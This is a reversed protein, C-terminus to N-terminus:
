TISFGGDVAITQGTLYSNRESALFAAVEAIEEVRGLRGLVTRKALEAIQAPSNNIRTLDTDVFGPAVANVLVNTRPGLELAAARTLADLAAKSACYAARGRRARVSYASSVNVIRGWGRAAMGPGFGRILLFAATVNTTLTRQWTELPLKAIEAPHNEGANNVLVDIREGAHASVFRSVADVDGLELEARSPTLLSLGDERLREAIARGIGRGAGTVLATRRARDAM